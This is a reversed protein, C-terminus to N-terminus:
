DIKLGEIIREHDADIQKKIDTMADKFAEVYALRKATFYGYGHYLSSNKRGKGIATYRGVLDNNNNLIEVDIDIQNKNINYPMGLVNLTGLSFASLLRLLYTGREDTAAVRCIIRGYKKGYPNTINSKVERDFLTILDNPTADVHNIKTINVTQANMDVSASTFSADTLQHNPFLKDLSYLDFEAELAPLLPNIQGTPKFEALNVTRCSSFLILMVLTVFYLKKMTCTKIILENRFVVITGHLVKNFANLGKM